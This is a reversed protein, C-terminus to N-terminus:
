YMICQSYLLQGLVKYKIHIEAPKYMCLVM